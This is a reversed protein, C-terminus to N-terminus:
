DCRAVVPHKMHRNLLALRAVDKHDRRTRKAGVTKKTIQQSRGELCAANMAQYQVGTNAISM